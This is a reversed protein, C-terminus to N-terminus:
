HLAEELNLQRPPEGALAPSALLGWMLIGALSAIFFRVSIM